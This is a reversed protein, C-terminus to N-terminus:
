WNKFMECLLREVPPPPTIISAGLPSAAGRFFALEVAHPKVTKLLPLILLLRGFRNDSQALGHPSDISRRPPRPRATAVALTHERLMTQAQDQYREVQVTDRLDTLETYLLVGCWITVHFGYLKSLSNKKDLSYSSFMAVDDCDDDCRDISTM